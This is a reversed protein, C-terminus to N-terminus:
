KLQLDLAKKEGDGITVKMSTASLADLFGPDKWEDQDIDGVANILYDGSPLNAIAYHGTADPRVARVRRAQPLWLKRDAAYAIIFVDSAAAGSATQLMGSVEAPRDSLTLLVTDTTRAIDMVGELLDRDGLMASRPWWTLADNPMAFSVSLQYAGPLINIIEFTGDANVLAPGVSSISSITAGPRTPLLLTRLGVRIKTLDAPPKADGDFVVRGALAIGPEVRLSVGSVDAGAMSLETQAWLSPTTNGVSVFGGAGAQSAAGAPPPQLPAKAVLKYSGPTVQAIRFTGDPRATANLVRASEPEFGGPPVIEALQVSAGGAPSGDPRTVEGEVIATAVRLLSFDLGAIEQGATLTLPTAQSVMAVGPFFVPAYDFPKPPAPSTVPAPATAAPAPPGSIGRRIADFAADVDADSLGVMPGNGNVAPKASVVYTGPELGFIRFEGREDTSAGNNSLTLIGGSAASRAPTATIPVGSVATGTEDRLIGALVAGRWMRVVLNQVAQGDNVVIATGLRGPRKAGYVSTIFTAREAMLTFHGAPLNSLTFRGEEDTIAGRNPTLGAGTLTIIARRVPRPQPEDTVVVGSISATGFTPKVDNDRPPPQQAYLVALFIWSLAFARHWRAMRRRIVTM